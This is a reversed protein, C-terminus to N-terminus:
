RAKPSPRTPPARYSPAVDQTEGTVRNDRYWAGPQAEQARQHYRCHCRKQGRLSRAVTNATRRLRIRRAAIYKYRVLLVRESGSQNWECQFTGNRYGVSNTDDEAATSSRGVEIAANRIGILCTEVKERITMRSHM